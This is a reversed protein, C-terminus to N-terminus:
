RNIRYTLGVTSTHLYEYDQSTNVIPYRLGPYHINVIPFNQGFGFLIQSCKKLLFIETKQEQSKKRDNFNMVISKRWIVYFYQM